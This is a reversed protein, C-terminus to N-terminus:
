DCGLMFRRTQVVDKDLILVSRNGKIRRVVVSTGSPM